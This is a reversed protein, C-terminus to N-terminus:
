TNKRATNLDYNELKALAQALLHVAVPTLCYFRSVFNAVYRITCFAPEESGTKDPLLGALLVSATMGTAQTLAAM